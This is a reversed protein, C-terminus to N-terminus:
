DSMAQPGGGGLRAVRGAMKRLGDEFDRSAGEALLAQECAKAAQLYESLQNVEKRLAKGRSVAEAFATAAENIEAEGASGAASAVATFTTTDGTLELDMASEGGCSVGRGRARGEAEELARLPEVLSAPELVGGIATRRVSFLYNVALHRFRDDRTKSRGQLSDVLRLCGESIPEREEHTEAGTRSCVQQWLDDVSTELADNIAGLIAEATEEEDFTAPSAEMAQGASQAM